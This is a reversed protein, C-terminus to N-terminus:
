VFYSQYGKGVGAQRKSGLYPDGHVSLTVFYGHTFHVQAVVRVQHNICTDIGFVQRLQGLCM